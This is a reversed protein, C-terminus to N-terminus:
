FKWESYTVDLSGGELPHRWMLFWINEIGKSVIMIVSTGGM